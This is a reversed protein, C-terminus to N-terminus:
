KNRIIELILNAQNQPTWHNQVEDVCNQTTEQANHSLIAVWKEIIDALSTANNATYRDGTIGDIISAVEPGHDYPADDTIVPVGHALSQIATLGIAAPVITIMTKRYFDAIEEPAYIAGLFECDINLEAAKKELEEREPGSGAFIVQLPIGRSHLISIADLLLPLKKTPILRSVAGVAYLKETSNIQQFGVEGGNGVSNFVVEMKHAPFGQQSGLSKGTPSYLMLKTALSYFANRILKKLGAEPRRWGMTWFYLPKNRLRIIISAIWTSIFRFDGTIVYQDITNDFAAKIVGRQWILSGLNIIRASQFNKLQSTPISAIGHYDREDAYHVFDLSEESDFIRYLSERYHALNPAIIAIKM